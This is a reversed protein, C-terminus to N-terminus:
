WVTNSYQETTQCWLRELVWHSLRSALYATLGDTDDKRNGNAHWINENQVTSL